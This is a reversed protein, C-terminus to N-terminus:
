GSTCSMKLPGILEIILSVSGGSSIFVTFTERTATALKVAISADSNSIGKSGKPSTLSSSISAKTFLWGPKSSSSSSSFRNCLALNIVPSVSSLGGTLLLM